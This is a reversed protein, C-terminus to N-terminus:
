EVSVKNNNDREFYITNLLFLMGLLTAKNGPDADTPFLLEFKDADTFIETGLGSWVKVIKGIEDNDGEKGPTYIYFPIRCSCCGEKCVNVCVGGCCTPMHIKYKLTPEQQGQAVSYLSYSPVCYWCDEKVKGVSEGTPSLTELEQYCCCKMNGTPCKFPRDYIALM